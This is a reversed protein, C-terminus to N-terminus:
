KVTDWISKAAGKSQKNREQAFTEGTSKSGGSGAGPTKSSDALAKDVGQKLAERFGETIEKYTAELNDTDAFAPAFAKALSVPLGDEALKNTINARNEKVTVEQERQNLKEQKQNFDYEAKEADTMKDYSKKEKSEKEWKAKLNEAAKEFRKDYASDFWSNFEDETKFAKFPKDEKGEGTGTGEGSGEGEGSGSGEGSGEGGEAFRQLNLLTSYFRIKEM